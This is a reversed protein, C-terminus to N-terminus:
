NTVQVSIYDGDTGNTYGEVIFMLDFGSTTPPTYNYYTAGSSVGGYTSFLRVAAAGYYSTENRSAASVAYNASPLNNSFTIHYTGSSSRTVSTVNNEGYLTCATTCSAARGDFTVWTSSSGGAVGCAVSGTADFGTVTQGAACAQGGHVLPAVNGTSPTAGAPIPGPNWNSSAAYVLGMCVVTTGVVPAM